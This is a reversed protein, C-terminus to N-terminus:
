LIGKVLDELHTVAQGYPKRSPCQIFFFLKYTIIVGERELCKPYFMETQYQTLAEKRYFNSVFELMKHENWLGILWTLLQLEQYVHISAM